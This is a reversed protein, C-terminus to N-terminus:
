PSPMFVTDLIM